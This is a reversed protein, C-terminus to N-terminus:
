AGFAPLKRKSPVLRSPSAGCWIAAAPMARVKWFM